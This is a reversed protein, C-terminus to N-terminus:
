CNLTVKGNKYIGVVISNTDYVNGKEKAEYYYEKGNIEVKDLLPEENNIAVEVDLITNVEKSKLYKSKIKNYDLGEGNCIAILLKKKEETMNQQYELKIKKLQSQLKADLENIYDVFIGHLNKLEKLKKM